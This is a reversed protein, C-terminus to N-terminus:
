ARMRTKKFFNKNNSANRPNKERARKAPILTQIMKKMKTERRRKEKKMRMMM